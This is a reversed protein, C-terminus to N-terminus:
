SVQFVFLFTDFELAGLYVSRYFTVPAFYDWGSMQHYHHELFYSYQFYLGLISAIAVYFNLFVFYRQNWFGICVGTMYCHHDRKLVCRQCVRCHHSRPPAMHNCSRCFHWSIVATIDDAESISHETANSNSSANEITSTLQTHRINPGSSSQTIDNSASSSHPHSRSVPTPFNQPYTQFYFLRLLIKLTVM